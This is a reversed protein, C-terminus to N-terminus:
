RDPIKAVYLFDIRQHWQWTLPLHPFRFVVAAFAHSVLSCNTTSSKNSSYAKDSSPESRVMIFRISALRDNDPQNYPPLSM